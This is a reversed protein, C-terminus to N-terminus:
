SSNAKPTLTVNIELRQSTGMVRRVLKLLHGDTRDFTAVMDARPNGPQADIKLFGDIDEFLANMDRFVYLREKEPEGDLTASQVKGNRVRVKYRGTVTGTKTYELDYSAPGKQKWLTRAIELQEPKLQQRLIFGVLVTIFIAALVGLIVFYWIWGRTGRPSPM